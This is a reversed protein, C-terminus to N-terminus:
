TCRRTISDVDQGLVKVLVEVLNPHLIARAWAASYYQLDHMGAFKGARETEQDMYAQRWPGTWASERNAWEGILRDLERKLEATEEQSFVQAVRLYGREWFLEADSDALVQGVTATM